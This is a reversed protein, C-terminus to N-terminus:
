SFSRQGQSGLSRRIIRDIRSLDLSQSITTHVAGDSLINLLLCFVTFLHQLNPNHRSGLVWPLKDLRICHLSPSKCSGNEVFRLLM